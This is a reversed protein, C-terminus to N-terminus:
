RRDPEWIEKSVITLRHQYRDAPFTGRVYEIARGAPDFIVRRNRLVPQGQKMQLWRAEEANAAGAEIILTGTAPRIGSKVRLLHYLSGDLPDTPELGTWRPLYSISYFLPLDGAWRVRELELVMEGEELNLEARVEPSPRVWEARIVQGRVQIGRLAMEDTLSMLFPLEGTVKPAQVFTGKGRRRQLRGKQVLRDVAQRVTARSVGFIEMLEMETPFLDGPQLGGEDIYRELIAAVQAYIPVPSAPDLTRAAQRLFTRDATRDPGVPM